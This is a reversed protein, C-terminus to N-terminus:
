RLKIERVHIHADGGANLDKIAIRIAKIPRAPAPDFPFDNTPDTGTQLFDRRYTQTEGTDLTLTIAANFDMTATTLMVGTLPRPEPFTLEIVFPNDVVTRVLTYPDGDFLDQLQGVDFKSHLASVTQGDVVADEQVPRRRAADEEAFIAGAQPSYSLRV